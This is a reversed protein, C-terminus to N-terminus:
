SWLSFTAPESLNSGARGQNLASSDKMKKKKKPSTPKEKERMTGDLAM